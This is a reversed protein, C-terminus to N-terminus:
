YGVYERKLLREEEKKRLEVLAQKEASLDVGLRAFGILMLAQTDALDKGLMMLFEGYGTM